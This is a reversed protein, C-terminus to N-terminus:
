GKKERLNSKSYGDNLLYFEASVALFSANKLFKRVERMLDYLEKGSIGGTSLKVYIEALEQLTKKFLLEDIGTLYYAGNNALTSTLLVIAYEKLKPLDHLNKEEL